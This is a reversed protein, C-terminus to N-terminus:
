KFSQIIIQGFHWGFAATISMLFVYLADGFIEKVFIIFDKM